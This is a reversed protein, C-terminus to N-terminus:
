PVRIATAKQSSRKEEAMLYHVIAWLEELEVPKTLFYEAGLDLGTMHTEPDTRGSLFVVPISATEEMSKLQRCTEFGNMGPMDVDLLILAFPTQKAQELGERGSSVWEVCVHKFVLAEKITWGVEKRDDIVLINM